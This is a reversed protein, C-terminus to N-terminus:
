FRGQFPFFYPYKKESFFHGLNGATLPHFSFANEFDYFYPPIKPSIKEQNATLYPTFNCFIDEIDGKFLSDNENRPVTM